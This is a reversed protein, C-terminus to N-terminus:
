TQSAAAARLDADLVQQPAVGVMERYLPPLAAALEAVQQETVGAPLLVYQFASPFPQPLPGEISSGYAGLAMVAQPTTPDPAFLHVFTCYKAHTLCSAAADRVAPDPDNMLTWRTVAYTRTAELFATRIPSVEERGGCCSIVNGFPDILAVANFAADRDRAATAERLLPEALEPGPFRPQACRVELTEPYLRALAERVPSGQPLSAPDTLEDPATAFTNSTARIADAGSAFVLSTLLFPVADVTDDCFATSRGGAYQRACPADVAYYGFRQQATARVAPPLSPFRFSSDYNIGAYTDIAAVGVNFGATLLAGACMACPDLSTVVTLAEPPPLGERNAFYWDVLQREGHATPDHLLFGTASGPYPMLVNNHREEVVRGSANDILVGGVAFTGQQSAEIALCGARRVADTASALPPM